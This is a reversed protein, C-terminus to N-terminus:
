KFIVPFIIFSRLLISISIMLFSTVRRRYGDLKLIADVDDCSFFDWLISDHIQARTKKKYLLRNTWKQIHHANVNDDLYKVLNKISRKKDRPLMLSQMASWLDQLFHTMPLYTTRWLLSMIEFSCYPFSLRTLKSCFLPQIFM